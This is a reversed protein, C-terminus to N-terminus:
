WIADLICWGPERRLGGAHILGIFCPLEKAQHLIYLIAHTMDSGSTFAPCSEAEAMKLGASDQHSRALAMSAYM